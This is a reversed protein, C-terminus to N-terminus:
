YSLLIGFEGPKVSQKSMLGTPTQLSGMLLSHADNSNPQRPPSRPQNSFAAALQLNGFNAANPEPRRSEHNQHQNQHYRHQYRSRYPSSTEPPSSDYVYYSDSQSNQQQNNLYPNVNSAILLDSGESQPRHRIYSKPQEEPQRSDILFPHNNPQNNTSYSLTWYPDYDNRKQFANKDTKEASATSLTTSTPVSAAGNSNLNSVERFTSNGRHSGSSHQQHQHSKRKDEPSAM